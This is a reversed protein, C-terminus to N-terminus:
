FTRFWNPDIVRQNLLHIVRDPIGTSVGVITGNIIKRSLCDPGETFLWRDVTHIINSFSSSPPSPPSTPGSAGAQSWVPVILDHFPSGLLTDFPSPPCGTPCPFVSPCLTDLGAGMLGGMLALQANSYAMNKQSVNAEGIIVHAPIQTALLALAGSGTSLDQIAGGGVPKNLLQFGAQCAANSALLANAFPSGGHPTDVTILKHVMGQNYNGNNLFNSVRPLTRTINGGMSHAVVDVQVAAAKFTQKFDDVCKRFRLLTNQANQAFSGGATAAYGIRCLDFRPDSLLPQFHDWTAPESWIGHILAVPPRRIEIMRLETRGSPDLSELRVTLLRLRSGDDSGGPRAFDVPAHYVAFVMPGKTPTSVANVMVSNQLNSRDVGVATVGGNDDTSGSPNMNDDLVTIQFPENAMSAPMRIVVRAVGDAAIGDVKVGQDELLDPDTTVNPGTLLQPAPDLLEPPSGTAIIYPRGTETALVAYGAPFSTFWEHM